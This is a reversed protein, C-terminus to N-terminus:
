NKSCHEENQKIYVFFCGSHWLTLCFFSYCQNIWPLNTLHRHNRQFVTADLNVIGYSQDVPLTIFNNNNSCAACLITLAIYYYCQFVVDFTATTNFSCFIISEIFHFPFYHFLCMFLFLSICFLLFFIYPWIASTGHCTRKTCKAAASSLYQNSNIFLQLSECQWCLSICPVTATCLSFFLCLALWTAVDNHKCM